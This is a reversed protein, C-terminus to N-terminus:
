RLLLRPIYKSMVPSSMMSIEASFTGGCIRDVCNANADTLPRGINSACPIGVWDASCSNPTPGSGVM